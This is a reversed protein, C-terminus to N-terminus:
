GEKKAIFYSIILLFIALLYMAIYKNLTYTTSFIIFFSVITLLDAKFLKWSFLKNVKKNQKM